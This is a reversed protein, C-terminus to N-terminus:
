GFHPVTHIHVPHARIVRLAPRYIWYNHWCYWASEPTSMQPPLVPAVPLPGWALRLAIPAQGYLLLLALSEIETTDDFFSVRTVAGASEKLLDMSEGPEFPQAALMAAAVYPPAFIGRIQVCLQAFRDALSSVSGGAGALIASAPPVEEDDRYGMRAIADRIELFRQGAEDLPLPSRALGVLALPNLVNLRLRLAQLRELAAAGGDWPLDAFSAALIAEWPQWQGSARLAERLGDYRELVIREDAPVAALLAAAALTDEKGAQALKVRELFRAYSAGLRMPDPGQKALMLAPVRLEPKAYESFGASLDATIMEARRVIAEMGSRMGAMNELFGEFPVGELRYRRIALDSLARRGDLTLEVSGGVDGCPALSDLTAKLRTLDSLRARARRLAARTGELPPAGARAFWRRPADAADLRRALVRVEDAVAALEGVESEMEEVSDVGVIRLLGRAGLLEVEEASAGAERHQVLAELVAFARDCDTETRRRM